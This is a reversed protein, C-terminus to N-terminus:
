GRLGGLARLWSLDNKREDKKLEILVRKRIEGITYKGKVAVLIRNCIDTLVEELTQPEDILHGWANAKKMKLEERTIREVIKILTEKMIIENSIIKEM